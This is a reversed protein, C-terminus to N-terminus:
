HRNADHRSAGAEQARMQALVQQLEAVRHDADVVEVRPRELVDLVDALGLELEDLVVDGLEDDTSPGTSKM